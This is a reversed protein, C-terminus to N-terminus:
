VACRQRCPRVRVTPTASSPSITMGSTGRQAAGAVEATARPFRCALLGPLTAGKYDALNRTVIADLRSATASAHQVADEYDPWHLSHAVRLVSGDIPAVDMAAILEAVAQRARVRGIEKQAVYFLNVASIGSFYGAFRKQENARWIALATADFPQRALFHDLLINTDLLATMM